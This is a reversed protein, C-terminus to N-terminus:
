SKNAHRENQKWKNRKQKKWEVLFFNKFIKLQHCDCNKEMIINDIKNNKNKKQNIQKKMTQNM